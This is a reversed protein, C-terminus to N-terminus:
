AISDRTAVHATRQRVPAAPPAAPTTLAEKWPVGCASPFSHPAPRMGAAAPLAHVCVERVLLLCCAGRQWHTHGDASPLWLQVSSPPTLKLCRRPAATVCVACWLVASTAAASAFM